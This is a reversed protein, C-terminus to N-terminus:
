EFPIKKTCNIPSLNVMWVCVSSFPKPRQLYVINKEVRNVPDTTGCQPCLKASVIVSFYREITMIASTVATPTTSESVSIAVRDGRFLLDVCNARNCTLMTIRVQLDGLHIM